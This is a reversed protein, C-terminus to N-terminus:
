GRVLDFIDSIYKTPRSWLSPCSYYMWDISQRITNINGCMKGYIPWRGNTIQSRVFFFYSFFFFNPERQENFWKQIMGILHCMSNSQNGIWHGDIFTRWWWWWWDYMENQCHCRDIGYLDIRIPWEDDFIWVQVNGTYQMPRVRTKSITIFSWSVVCFFM